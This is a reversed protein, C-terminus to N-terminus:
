LGGRQHADEHQSRPRTMRDIVWASIALATDEPTGANTDFQQDVNDRLWRAFGVQGDVDRSRWKPRTAIRERRVDDPCDLLSFYVDSVWRRAYLDELQRPIFPGLLVTPMGSQAVGHAIALWAEQFAPWRIPPGDGLDRAADLLWDVDFTVCRGALVRALPALVATKGSGSAGTVVFLPSRAAADDARGCQPCVAHGDRPQLTVPSDCSQCYHM